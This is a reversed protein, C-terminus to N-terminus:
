ANPTDESPQCQPWLSHLMEVDEASIERSLNGHNMISPRAAADIHHLGFAHGLEHAATITRERANLKQNVTVTGLDQSYFGHMFPAGDEFYVPIQAEIDAGDRVLKLGAAQNWMAIAADLSELQEPRTGAQAVIALPECPNFVTDFPADSAADGCGSLAALGLAILAALSCHIHRPSRFSLSYRNLM